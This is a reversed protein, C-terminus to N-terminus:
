MAKEAITKISVNDVKGTGLVPLRDGVVIDKPRM